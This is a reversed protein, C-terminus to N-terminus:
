VTKLLTKAEKSVTVQSGSLLRCDMPLGRDRLPLTLELSPLLPPSLCPRTVLSVWHLNCLSQGTLGERGLYWEHCPPMYVLQLWIDIHSLLLWAPRLCGQPRAMFMCISHSMLFVKDWNTPSVAAWPAGVQWWQSSLSYM